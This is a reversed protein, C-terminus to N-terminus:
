RKNPLDGILKDGCEGILGCIPNLSTTIKFECEDVSKCKPLSEVLYPGVCEEQWVGKCSPEQICKNSCKTM